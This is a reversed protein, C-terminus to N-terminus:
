FVRVTGYKTFLKFMEEANEVEHLKEDLEFNLLEFRGKLEDLEFGAKQLDVISLNQFMRTLDNTMDQHKCARSQLMKLNRKVDQVYEFSQVEELKLSQLYNTQEELWVM